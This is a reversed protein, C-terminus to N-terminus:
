NTKPDPSQVTIDIEPKSSANGGDDNSNMSAAALVGLGLWLWKNKWIPQSLSNDRRIIVDKQSSAVSTEVISIEEMEQKINVSLPAFAYGHLLTNGAIDEAQIYYEIGPAILQSKKFVYSYFDQQDLRMQVRIFDTAGTYKYYLSVSKIGINDTVIAEVVYEQQTTVSTVSPKHIVEPATIDKSPLALDAAFIPTVLCNFLFMFTLKLLNNM